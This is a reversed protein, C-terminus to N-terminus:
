GATLYHFSVGSAVIPSPVPLPSPPSSAPDFVLIDAVAISDRVRQVQVQTNGKSLTHIGISLLFSLFSSRLNLLGSFMICTSFSDFDHCAVKKESASTSKKTPSSYELAETRGREDKSEKHQKSEDILKWEKPKEIQNRIEFM